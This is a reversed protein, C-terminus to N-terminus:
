NNFYSNMFFRYRVKNANNSEKAEKAIAGIVPLVVTQTPLVVVRLSAEKPPPHHLLLLAIAYTELEETPTTVPTAAPVAVM